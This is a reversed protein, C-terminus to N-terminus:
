GHNCCGQLPCWEEFTKREVRVEGHSRHGGWVKMDQTQNADNKDGYVAPVLVSDSRALATNIEGNVRLRCRHTICLTTGMFTSGRAEYQIRAWNRATEFSVNHEPHIQSVFQLHGHDGPKDGDRRRFKSLAIHFGNCLDHMFHSKDLDKRLHMRHQDQIPLFQGDVDGAPIVVNGTFALNALAAWMCLPVMSCEDIIVVFRKAQAYRHLEYLITNGELSVSAVHTFATYHVSYGLSECKPEFLKLLWSKGTGGRGSVYAGRNEVMLDAM